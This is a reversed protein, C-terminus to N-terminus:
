GWRRYKSRLANQKASLRGVRDRFRDLKRSIMSLDGARHTADTSGGKVITDFTDIARLGRDIARSYRGYVAEPKYAAALYSGAGGLLGAGTATALQGASLHEPENAYKYLVSELFKNMSM